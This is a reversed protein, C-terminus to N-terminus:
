LVTPLQAIWRICASTAHLLWVVLMFVLIFSLLARVPRDRRHRKHACYPPYPLPSINFFQGSEVSETAAGACWLPAVTWLKKIVNFGYTRGRLSMRARAHARTSPTTLSFHDRGDQLKARAARLLLADAM